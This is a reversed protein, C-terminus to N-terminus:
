PAAAGPDTIPAAPPTGKYFAIEDLSFDWTADASLFGLEQVVDKVLASGGKADAFAVTYQTWDPTLVVAKRPHNYCGATCDGGNPMGMANMGAQNTTPLVFNVNITSGAAIGTKAWFSIGDFAQINACYIMGPPDIAVNYIAGVGFGPAKTSPNAGTGKYQGAHGSMYGPMIQLMKIMNDAADVGATGLDNFTSWGFSVNDPNCFTASAKCEFNDVFASTM